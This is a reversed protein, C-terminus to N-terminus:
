KKGLKYKYMWKHRGNQFPTCPERLSVVSRFIAWLNTIFQFTPFYDHIEDCNELSCLLFDKLELKFGNNTAIALVCVAHSFSIAFQPQFLSFSLSLMLWCFVPLSCLALLLTHFHVIVFRLIWKLSVAFSPPPPPPLFLISVHFQWCWECPFSCVTSQKNAKAKAQGRMKPLTPVCDMCENTRHINTRKRETHANPM